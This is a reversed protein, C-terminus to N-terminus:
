RRSKAGRYGRYNFLWYDYKRHLYQGVAVFLALTIVVVQTVKLLVRM